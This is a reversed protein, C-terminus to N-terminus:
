AASEATTTEEVAGETSAADLASDIEAEISEQMEKQKAQFEELTPADAPKEITYTEGYKTITNTMKFDVNINQGEPLPQQGYKEEIIDLVTKFMEKFDLSGAMEQSELLYTEKNYVQTASGFGKLIDAILQDADLEDLIPQIAAKVMEVEEPNANQTAAIQELATNFQSKIMEGLKMDAFAPKLDKTFDMTVVYGKDSEELQGAAEFLKLNAEPNQMEQSQKMAEAMDIEQVQWESEGGKLYMVNDVITLLMDSAEGDPTTATLVMDMAFPEPMFKFNGSFKVPTENGSPDKATAEFAIDGEASQMKSNAEIIKSYVESGETQAHTVPAMVFSSALLMGTFLKKVFKM